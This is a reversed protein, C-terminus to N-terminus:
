SGLPCQLVECCHTILTHHARTWRTLYCKLLPGINRSVQNLHWLSYQRFYFPKDSMLLYIEVQFRNLLRLNQCSCNIGLIYVFITQGQVEDSMLITVLVLVAKLRLWTHFLLLGTSFKQSTVCAKHYFVHVNPLNIRNYRGVRWLKFFFKIVICM